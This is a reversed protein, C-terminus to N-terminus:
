RPNVSFQNAPAVVQAVLKGNRDFPLRITDPSRYRLRAAFGAIVDYGGFRVAATITSSAVNAQDPRVSSQARDPRAPVPNGADPRGAGADGAFTLM